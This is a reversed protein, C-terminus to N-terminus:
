PGRGETEDHVERLDICRFGCQRLAKKLMWRLNRTTEEDPRLSRLKLLFTRGPNTM